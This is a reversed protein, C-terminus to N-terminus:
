KNRRRTKRRRGARPALSVGTDQRLKDMQANTSGTKGTIFSGIVSDVDEPLNKSTGLRKVATLNRGMVQPKNIRVKEELIRRVEWDLGLAEGVSIYMLDRHGYGKAQLHKFADIGEQGIDDYISDPDNFRYPFHTDRGDYLVYDALRRGDVDGEEDIPQAAQRLVKAAKRPSMAVAQEKTIQWLRIM